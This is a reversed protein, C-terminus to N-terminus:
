LVCHRFQSAKLNAAILPDISSFSISSSFSFSSNELLRACMLWLSISKKRARAHAIIAVVIGHYLKEEIMAVIGNLDNSTTVKVM